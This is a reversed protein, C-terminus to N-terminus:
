ELPVAGPKGTGPAELSRDCYGGPEASVDESLHSLLEQAVEARPEYGENFARRLIPEPDTRQGARSHLIATLCQLLKSDFSLETAKGIADVADRPRDDTIALWAKYYYAEGSSPRATLWRELPKRAQDFRRAAFLERVSQIQRAERYQAFAVFSVAVIAMPVIVLAILLNARSNGWRSWDGPATRSTMGGQGPLIGHVSAPESEVSM